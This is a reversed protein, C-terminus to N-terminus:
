SDEYASIGLTLKIKNVFHESAQRKNLREKRLFHLEM